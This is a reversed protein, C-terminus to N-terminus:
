WFTVDYINSLSRFERKLLLGGFTNKPFPTRFIFLLNVPCCGHGTTIEICTHEGTFKSYIKLVGKELFVEPPSSRAKACQRNRKSVQLRILFRTSCRRHLKKKRFYIFCNVKKAFFSQRLHEVPNKIRREFTKNLSFNQLVLLHLIIKRYRVDLYITVLYKQSNM